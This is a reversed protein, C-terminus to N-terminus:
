GAQRNPVIEFAQWAVTFAASRRSIGATTLLRKGMDRETRVFRRGPTVNAMFVANAPAM